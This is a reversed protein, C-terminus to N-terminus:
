KSPRTPRSRKRSCTSSEGVESGMWRDVDLITQMQKKVKEAGEDTKLLLALELEKKTVGEKKALEYAKRVNDKATAEAILLPSLKRLHALLLRQRETDSLEAATPKRPKDTKKKAKPPKKAGGAKGTRKAM